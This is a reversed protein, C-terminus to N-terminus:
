FKRDTDVGPIEVHSRFILYSPSGAGTEACLSKAFSVLERRHHVHDEGALIMLYLFKAM